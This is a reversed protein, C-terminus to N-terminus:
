AVVKGQKLVAKRKFKDDVFVVDFPLGSLKQLICTAVGVAAGLPEKGGCVFGTEKLQPYHIEKSLEHILDALERAVDQENATNTLSTLCEKAQSSLTQKQHREYQLLEADRFAIYAATLSKKPYMKRLGVELLHRNCLVAASRAEDSLKEHDLRVLDKELERIKMEKIELEKQLEMDKLALDKELDKLALDKELDKLALKKEFEKEQLLMAVRAVDDCVEHKQLAEQALKIAGSAQRNVILQSRSQKHV